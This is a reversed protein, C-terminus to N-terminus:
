RSRWLPSLNTYGNASKEVIFMEAPRRAAHGDAFAINLTKNPHRGNFADTEHGPPVFKEANIGLGPAYNGDEADKLLRGPPSLTVHWWNIICYGSDAALLTESPKLIETSQLPIGMFERKSRGEYANLCISGNVGYNGHFVNLKLREDDICRSPCWLIGEELNNQPLYPYICDFWWWGPNDFVASGSRASPPPEKRWIDYGCPFTGTNAEYVSLIVHLQHIRSACAIARAKQRCSNLLPTVIAALLGTVAVVVILEM